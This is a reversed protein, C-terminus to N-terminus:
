LKLENLSLISYLTENSFLRYFALSVCVCVCMVQEGEEEEMQELISPISQNISALISHVFIDLQDNINEDDM